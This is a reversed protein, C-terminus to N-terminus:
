QLTNEVEFAFYAQDFPILGSNDVIAGPAGQIPVIVGPYETKTATQASTPSACMLAVLAWGPAAGLWRAASSPCASSSANRTFARGASLGRGELGLKSKM